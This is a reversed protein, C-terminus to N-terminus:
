EPLVRKKQVDEVTDIVMQEPDEVGIKKYQNYLDQVYEAYKKDADSINEDNENIGNIYKMTIDKMRNNSLNKNEEVETYENYAKAFQKEAKRTTLVNQLETKKNAVVGAAYKSTIETAAATAMMGKLGQSSGLSAGGIRSGWKAQWQLNKIAGEKAKKKLNDLYNDEQKENEENEEEYMNLDSESDQQNNENILMSKEVQKKMLQRELADKTVMDGEAEAAQIKGELESIDNNIGNIKENNKNKNNGNNQTNKNSSNEMNTSEPNNNKKTETNDKSSLAKDTNSSQRSITPKKNQSGSKLKEKNSNNPNNKELAPIKKAVIGQLNGIGSAMIAAGWAMDSSSKGGNVVSFIAKIIKEAKFIFVTMLVALVSGGLSGDMLGIGTVTITLYIVCHFPQILVNVMFEKLWNELAQAKKDKVKDISYTVTILPAIMILFAITIMRQIYMVLFVFTVGCLVTYVIASGFGKCFGATTLADKLTENMVNNVDVGTANQNYSNIYSERSVDMLEVLSDSIYIGALIIYHLLFVLAFSVAWDTLMQKYRAEQEAVTSITMRIGIYVLVVLLIAIALNRLASYWIAVNKRISSIAGNDSSFDFFNIDTLPIRNFLIDESSIFITEATSADGDFGGIAAISGAITRAITGIVIVILRMPYLILGVIGDVASGILDDVGDRSSSSSSTGSNENSNENSNANPNTSPNSGVGTTSGPSASDAAYVFQNSNVIIMLLMICMLTKKLYKM